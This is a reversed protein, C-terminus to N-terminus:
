QINEIMNCILKKLKINNFYMIVVGYSSKYKYTGKRQINIVIPKYFQEKKAGLEKTWYNLAEESSIDKFIQISYRLKERKIEFIVELFETFKRLLNPDTNSIKLGGNGRKSGEGWYLGLGMGFLIAQKMNKPKQLLFPDGLPNKNVYIAESITRKNIKFKKLWYNVKNQSCRLQASIYSVSRNNKIYLDTLVDKSIENTNRKPLSLVNM